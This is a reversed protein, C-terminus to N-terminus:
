PFQPWGLAARRARDKHMAERLEDPTLQRVQGDGFLVSHTPVPFPSRGDRRYAKSAVREYALVVGPEPRYAGAGGVYAFSSYVPGDPSGIGHPDSMSLFIAPSCDGSEVLTALTVPYDGHRGCYLEVAMGIGRLHARTIPTKVANHGAWLSVGLAVTSGFLLMASLLTLWAGVPGVLPADTPAGSGRARLRHATVGGAIALLLALEIWPSPGIVPPASALWLCVIGTTVLAFAIHTRRRSRDPTAVAAPAGSAADRQGRVDM